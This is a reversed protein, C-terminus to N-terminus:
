AETIAIADMSEIAGRNDRTVTFRYNVPEKIMADAIQQTDVVIKNDNYNNNLSEVSPVPVNFVPAVNINLKQILGHIAQLVETNDPAVKDIVDMLGEVIVRQPEEPGFEVEAGDDMLAKLEERSINDM